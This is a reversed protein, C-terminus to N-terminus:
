PNPVRSSPGVQLTVGQLVAKRVAGAPPAAGGTYPADYAFSVNELSAAPLESSGRYGAPDPLVFRLTPDRRLEGAREPASYSTRYRGRGGRTNGIRELKREREKAQRM